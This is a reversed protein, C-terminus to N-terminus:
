IEKCGGVEQLRKHNMLLYSNKSLCIPQCLPIPKLLGYLSFLLWFCHIEPNSWYLALQIVLVVCMSVCICLCVCRHVKLM